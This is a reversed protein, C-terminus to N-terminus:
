QQPPPHSREGKRMRSWLLRELAFVLNTPDSVDVNADALRDSRRGGKEYVHVILLDPFRDRVANLIVNRRAWEVSNNVILADCVEQSLLDLIGEAARPTIVRYGSATLTVRRRLAEAAHSTLTAIVHMRRISPELHMLPHTSEYAPEPQKREDGCCLPFPRRLRILTLM